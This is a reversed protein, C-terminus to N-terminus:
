KYNNDTVGPQIEGNCDVYMQVVQFSFRKTYIGVINMTM